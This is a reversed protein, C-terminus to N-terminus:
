QKSKGKDMDQNGNKHPNEIDEEKPLRNLIDFSNRTPIKETNEQNQKRPPHRKRGIVRTYGEKQKGERSKSNKDNL